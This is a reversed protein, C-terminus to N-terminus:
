HRYRRIIQKAFETGLLYMSESDYHSSEGEPLTLNIAKRDEGNTKIIVVDDLEDANAAKAKNVINSFVCHTRDCVFADIIGINDCYKNLDERFYNFLIKENEKYSYAFDEHYADTEGQMWCIDITDISIGQNVLDDLTKILYDMSITYHYGREGNTLWNEAISTGGWATKCIYFKGKKSYKELRLGLGIEPGFGNYDELQVLTQEFESSETHFDCFCSLKINDFGEKAKEYRGDETAKLDFLSSCGAANSQGSIIIIHNVERRQCSACSFILVCLIVLNIILKNLKQQKFKNM